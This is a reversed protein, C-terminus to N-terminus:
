LPSYLFPKVKGHRPTLAKDPSVPKPQMRKNRSSISFTTSSLSQSSDLVSNSRLLGAAEYIGVARKDMEDIHNQHSKNMSLLTLEKTFYSKDASFKQPVLILKEAGQFQDELVMKLINLEDRIDKIETLTETEETIDFLANL